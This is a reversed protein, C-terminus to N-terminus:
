RNLPKRNKRKLERYQGSIVEIKKMQKKKMSRIIHYLYLRLNKYREHRRSKRM